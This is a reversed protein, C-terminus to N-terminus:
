LLQIIMFITRVSVLVNRVFIFLLASYIVHSAVSNRVFDCYIAINAPLIAM